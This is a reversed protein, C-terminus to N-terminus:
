GDAVERDKRPRRGRRRRWGVLEFIERNGALGMPRRFLVVLILLGVAVQSLGFVSLSEEVHGMFQRVITVITAGLVVGSVSQIGGIVVIALVDVTLTLYFQTPSFALNYHAWLAGGLGMILASLTWAIWRVRIIGIGLSSAALPDTRSARVKSGVDSERFAFAIAICPVAFALAWWLDISKPIGFLGNAGNTWSNASTLVVNIIVLVSFTAMAMASEHMRALPLGLLAAIVVTVAVAALLGPLFGLELTQVFSPLDPLFQTKIEPPISVLAAVYAGIGMFGIHGFSVIGTNGSFVQLSLALVLTIFFNGVTTQTPLSAFSVTVLALLALPVGLMVTGYAARRPWSMM